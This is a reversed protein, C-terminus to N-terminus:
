PVIINTKRQKAGFCFSAENNKRQKEEEECDIVFVNM